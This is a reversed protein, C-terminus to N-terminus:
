RMFVARFEPLNLNRAFRELDINTLTHRPRKMQRKKPIKEHGLCLGLGKKLLKVQM